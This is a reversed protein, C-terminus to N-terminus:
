VQAVIARVAELKERPDGLTTATAERVLAVLQWLRAREQEEAGMEPPGSIDIPDMLAPDAQGKLRKAGRPSEWLCSEHPHMTTGERIKDVQYGWRVSGDRDRRPLDHERWDGVLALPKLVMRGEGTNSDTGRVAVCRVWAGFGHDYHVTQGEELSAYFDDNSRSMASMARDASLQRRVDARNLGRITAGAAQYSDGFPVLAVTLPSDRVVVYLAHGDAVPFKVLAGALAGDPDVEASRKALDQLMAEERRCREEWDLDTLRAMGPVAKNSLRAM